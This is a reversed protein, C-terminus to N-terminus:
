SIPWEPPRRHSRTSRRAELRRAQSPDSPAEAALFGIRYSKAVQQAFGTLPVALAGAGLALMVQRRSKM